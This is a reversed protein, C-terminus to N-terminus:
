AATTEGMVLGCALALLDSILFPKDLRSVGLEDATRLVDANCIGGTLVATRHIWDPRFSMFELIRRGDSPALSMDLLIADYDGDLLKTIADPGNNVQTPRAGAFLFVDALLATLEPSDDVILIRRDALIAHQTNAVM